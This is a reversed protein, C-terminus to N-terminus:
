GDGHWRPRTGAVVPVSVAGVAGLATVVRRHRSLWAAASRTKARGDFAGHAGHDGAVPSWLNVPRDHDDTEDTQQADYGKRALYRDLLAPFVRNALIARTTSWGLWYERREPHEAAHVIMRAAVEPQFIPPVPQARRPLRSLVWDFQPTNLAPLQVMTVHVNSGDHRLETRLAATFGLVGHKAGCYASQL